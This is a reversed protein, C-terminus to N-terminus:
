GLPSTVLYIRFLNDSARLLGLSLAGPFPHAAPLPPDAAQPCIHSGSSSWSPLCFLSELAKLQPLALPPVLM